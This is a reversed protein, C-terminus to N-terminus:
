EMESWIYMRFIDSTNNFQDEYIISLEKLYNYKKVTIKIEKWVSAYSNDKIQEKIMKMINEYYNTTVSPSSGETLEKHPLRSAM